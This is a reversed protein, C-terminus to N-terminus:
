SDRLEAQIGRSGIQICRQAKGKARVRRHAAFEAGQYAHLIGASLFTYGSERGPAGAGHKPTYHPTMWSRYESCRILGKLLFVRKLKPQATVATGGSLSFKGSCAQRWVFSAPVQETQANWTWQGRSNAEGLFNEVPRQLPSPCRPSCVRVAAGYCPAFTGCERRFLALAVRTQCSRAPRSPRRAFSLSLVSIQALPTVWIVSSSAIDAYLHLLM